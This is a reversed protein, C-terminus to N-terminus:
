YEGYCRWIETLDDLMANLSGDVSAGRAFACNATLDMLTGPPQNWIVPYIQKYFRSDWDEKNRVFSTLYNLTAFNNGRHTNVEQHWIQVHSLWSAMQNNLTRRDDLIQAAEDESEIGLVPWICPGPEKLQPQAVEIANQLKEEINNLLHAVKPAAFLSSQDMRADRKVSVIDAFCLRLGAMNSRIEDEGANAMPSELLTVALRTMAQDLASFSCDTNQECRLCELYGDTLVYVKQVQNVVARNKEMLAHRRANYTEAHARYDQLQRALDAIEGERMQASRIRYYHLMGGSRILDRMSAYVWTLDKGRLQGSRFISRAEANLEATLKYGETEGDPTSAITDFAETRRILEAIREREPDSASLSAMNMRVKNVCAQMSVREEGARTQRWDALGVSMESQQQLTEQGWPIGVSVASKTMADFIELRDRLDRLANMEVTKSDHVATMAMQPTMSQKPRIMSRSRSGSGSPKDSTTDAIDGRKRRQMIARSVPDNRGAGALATPDDARGTGPKPADRGMDESRLRESGAHVAGTQDSPGIGPGKHAPPAAVVEGPGDTRGAADTAGAEGSAVQQVPAFSALISCAHSMRVTLTRGDIACGNIQGRWGAFCNDDAPFASIRFEKGALAWRSGADVYGAGKVTVALWYNTKWNLVVAMDKVVRFSCPDIPRGSTSHDSQATWGTCVYQTTGIQISAPSVPVSVLSGLHHRSVNPACGPGQLGTVSLRYFDDRDEVAIAFSRESSAGRRNTARVRIHHNSRSENDLPTSTRLTNGVLNFFPNGSCGPGAVLEFEFPAGPEDEDLATLTGVWANTPMNEPVSAHSLVLNSPPLNTDAVAITFNREVSLGGSDIARIRVPYVRCTEYDLSKTAYLANSRIAFLTGAAGNERPVLSYTFRDGADPDATRLLGVIQGVPQHELITSSSLSMGTPRENTDSIGIILTKECALGGRDTAAIRVRALPQTEFNFSVKSVLRDGEIAFAKNDDAGPGDVLRYTFGDNKDPDIAQLRGAITGPKANEPIPAGPKLAIDGPPENADTVDVDIARECFLGGSDTSRVRISFRCRKEFDFIVRTALLDNTVSFFGNDTDGLGPILAYTFHDDANDDVTRLRSM